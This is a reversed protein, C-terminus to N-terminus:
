TQFTDTQIMITSVRAVLQWQCHVRIKVQFALPGELRLEALVQNDSPDPHNWIHYQNLIYSTIM